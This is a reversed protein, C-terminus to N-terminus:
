FTYLGQDAGRYLHVLADLTEIIVALHVHDHRAAIVADDPHPVRVYGGLGDAQKLTM